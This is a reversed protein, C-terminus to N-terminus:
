ELYIYFILFLQTSPDKPQVVAGVAAIEFGSMEIPYLAKCHITMKLPSPYSVWLLPHFTFLRAGHWPVSALILYNACEYISCVKELWPLICKPHFCHDCPLKRM